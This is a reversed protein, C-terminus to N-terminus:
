EPVMRRAVETAWAEGMAEILAGPFRVVRVLGDRLAAFIPARARERRADQLAARLERLVQEPSDARPVVEQVLSFLQALENEARGRDGHFVDLSIPWYLGENPGKHIDLQTFFVVGPLESPRVGLAAAVRLSPNEVANASEVALLQSERTVASRAPEPRLFLFLVIRAAAALQDLWAFQQEAFAAVPRHSEREDFLFFGYLKPRTDPPRTSLRVLAGTLANVNTVPMAM